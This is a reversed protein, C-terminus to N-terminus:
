AGSLATMLISNIGQITYLGNDSLFGEEQLIEMRIKNLEEEPLKGSQAIQRELMTRQRHSEKASFLLREKVRTYLDSRQIPPIDKRLEEITKGRRLDPNKTEKGSYYEEIAGEVYTKLPEELPTTPDEKLALMQERKRKLDAIMERFNPDWEEQIEVSKFKNIADKEADERPAMQEYSYRTMDGSLFEKKRAEIKQQYKDKFQVELFSSLEKLHKTQLQIDYCGLKEPTFWNVLEGILKLEKLGDPITVESQVVRPSSIGVGEDLLIKRIVSKDVGHEHAKEEIFREIADNRKNLLTERLSRENQSFTSLYRSHIEFLTEDLNKEVLALLLVLYEEVHRFRRLLSDLEGWNEQPNRKILQCLDYSVIKYFNRTNEDTHELRKPLSMFRDIMKATVCPNVIKSPPLKLKLFDETMELNDSSSGARPAQSSDDNQKMQRATGSFDIQERLLEIERAYHTLNERAHIQARLDELTTFDIEDLILGSNADVYGLCIKKTQYSDPKLVVFVQYPKFLVAEIMEAKIEGDLVHNTELFTFSTFQTKFQKQHIKELSKLGPYNLPDIQSSIPLHEVRMTLEVQGTERDIKINDRTVGSAMATDTMVKCAYEWINQDGIKEKNFEDSHIKKWVAEIAEDQPLIKNTEINQVFRQYSESFCLLPVGIFALPSFIFKVFNSIKEVVFSFTSNKPQYHTIITQDYYTVLNENMFDWGSMFLCGMKEWVDPATINEPRRYLFCM